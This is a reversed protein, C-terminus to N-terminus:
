EKPPHSARGQPHNRIMNRNGGGGPPCGKTGNSGMALPQRIPRQLGPGRWARPLSLSVVLGGGPRPTASITGGNGVALRRVVTLGLGSGPYSGANALRTFPKLMARCDQSSLRAGRDAVQIQLHEAAHDATIVIEIPQHRDAYKASNELLNWAMQNFANPASWLLRESEGLLCEIQVVVGLQAQAQEALIVLLPYADIRQRLLSSEETPVQSIQLLDQLILRSREAEARAAELGEIQSASLRQRQRLAHAIGLSISTLPNRLEHAILSAFQDVKEIAQQHQRHMNLLAGYILLGIGIGNFALLSDHNLRATSSGPYLNFIEIVLLNCILFCGLWRRAAQPRGLLIALMPTRLSWVMVLCSNYYGGLLFTLIFPCTFSIFLSFQRYTPLGIKGQSHGAMFALTLGLSVGMVATEAWLGAFAYTYGLVFNVPLIALLNFTNLILIQQRDQQSQHGKLGLKQLRDFVQWGRAQLRQLAQTAASIPHLVM